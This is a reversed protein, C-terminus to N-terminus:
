FDPGRARRPIKETPVLNTSILQPTNMIFCWFFFFFFGYGLRLLNLVLQLISGFSFDSKHPIVRPRCRLFLFCFHMEM